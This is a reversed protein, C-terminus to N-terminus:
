DSLRAPRPLQPLGKDLLRRTAHTLLPEVTRFYLFGAIIGVTSILLAATETPPANGMLPFLLRISFSLVIPHVLYISYSAAGLVLIHTSLNPSHGREIEVLGLIALVACGGFALRGTLAHDQIDTALLMLGLFGIGGAAALFHPVPLRRSKLLAAAAVGAIFELNFPSLLFSFPFPLDGFRDAILIAAAWCPLIALARRGCLIIAAFLAYFFVEHVLTWAVGLVPQAIYPLLFFSLVINVPDHQSAIGAGPFALYLLILPLLVGWYPPYVRLFRKIAYRRLRSGDGIDNWHVWAIIFGSLVFFFDVGVNFNQLHGAFPHAGYFRPQAVLNGAHHLVVVTAALARCAELTVFRSVPRRDNM